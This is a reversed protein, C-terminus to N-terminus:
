GCNTFSCFMRVEAKTQQKREGGGQRMRASINQTHSKGHPMVAEAGLQLQRGLQTGLPAARPPLFAQTQNLTGMRRLAGGERDWELSSRASTTYSNQSGLDTGRPSLCNCGSDRDRSDPGSGKPEWGRTSPGGELWWNGTHEPTLYKVKRPVAKNPVSLCGPSQAM